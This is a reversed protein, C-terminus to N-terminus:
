SIGIFDDIDRCEIYGLEMLESEDKGKLEDAIKKESESMNPKWMERLGDNTYYYVLNEELRIFGVPIKGVGKIEALRLQGPIIQDKIPPYKYERKVEIQNIIFDISFKFLSNSIIEYIVVSYTDLGKSVDVVYPEIQQTKLTHFNVQLERNNLVDVSIARYEYSIESAIIYLAFTTIKHDQSVKTIFSIIYNEKGKCVTNGAEKLITICDNIAKEDM